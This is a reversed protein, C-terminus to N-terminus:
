KREVDTQICMLFVQCSMLWSPIKKKISMTIFMGYLLCDARIKNNSHFHAKLFTSM